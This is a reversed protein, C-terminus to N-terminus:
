AAYYTWKSDSCIVILSSNKAQPPLSVFLPQATVRFTGRKQVDDHENEVGAPYECRVLLRSCRQCAPLAKDCAKKRRKCPICVSLAISLTPLAENAM